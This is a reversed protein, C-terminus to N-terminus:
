HVVRVAPADPIEAGEIADEIAEDIYEQMEEGLSQMRANGMDRAVMLCFGVPGLLLYTWGRPLQKLAVGSATMATTVPHWYFQQTGDETETLSHAFVQVSVYWWIGLWSLFWWFATFEFFPKLESLLHWLSSV